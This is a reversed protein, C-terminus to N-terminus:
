GRANLGDWLLPAGPGDALPADACLDATKRLTRVVLQNCRLFSARNYRLGVGRATEDVQTAIPRLSFRPLRPFLHHVTQYQLGGHFWDM